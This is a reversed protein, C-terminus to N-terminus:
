SKDAKFFIWFNPFSMGVNGKFIAWTIQIRPYHFFFKWRITIKFAFDICENWFAYSLFYSYNINKLSSHFSIGLRKLLLLYLIYEYFIGKIFIGLLQVTILVARGTRVVCNRQSILPPIEIILAFILFYLRKWHTKQALVCCWTSVTFALMFLTFQIEIQIRWISFSLWIVLHTCIYTFVCVLMDCKLGLM